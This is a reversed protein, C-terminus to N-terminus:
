KGVNRDSDIVKGVRCHRKLMDGVALFREGNDVLMVTSDGCLRATVLVDGEQKSTLTHSRTTM